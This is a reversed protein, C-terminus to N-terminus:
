TRDSCRLDFINRQGASGVVAKKLTDREVDLRAFERRLNSLEGDDPKLQGNSPFADPCSSGFDRVCRRLMTAHVDLDKAAQAVGVSRATM